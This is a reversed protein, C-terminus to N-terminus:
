LESQKMVLAASRACIGAVDGGTGSGLALCFVQCARAQDHHAQGRVPGVADASLHGAEGLESGPRM